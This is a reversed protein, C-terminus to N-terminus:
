QSFSPVSCPLCTTLSAVCRYTASGPGSGLQDLELKVAGSGGAWEELDWRPVRELRVGAKEGDREQWLAKVCAMSNGRGPCTVEELMLDRNFPVEPPRRGQGGLWRKTEVM